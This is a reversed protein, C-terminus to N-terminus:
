ASRFCEEEDEDLEEKFMVSTVCASCGSFVLWPLFTDRTGVLLQSSHPGTECKVPDSHCAQRDACPHFPTCAAETEM